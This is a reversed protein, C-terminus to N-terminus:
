TQYTEEIQFELQNIDTLLLNGIETNLDQTGTIMRIDMDMKMSVFPFNMCSMATAERLLMDERAKTLM